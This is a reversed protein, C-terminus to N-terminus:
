SEKGKNQLLRAVRQEHTEITHISEQVDKWGYQKLLFIFGISNKGSILGQAAFDECALKARKVLEAFEPKKQYEDLTAKTSFGLALAVSTILPPRREVHCYDFFESLVTAMQEPTEYVPLAGFSRMRLETNKVFEMPADPPLDPPAPLFQKAEKELRKQEQKELRKAEARKKRKNANRVKAWRAEKEEQTEEKKPKRATM